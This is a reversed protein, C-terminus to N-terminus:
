FNISKLFETVYPSWLKVGDRSDFLQHGEGQFSDILVSQVPAGAAHYAFTANKALAPPFLEDNDAYVWLSPTRATKGFESFAKVLSVDWVCPGSLNKLGGSFSIIGKVYSNQYNAAYAVSVLGGYSHGVVLVRNADIYPQKIFYQIAVDISKAQLIADRELDCGRQKYVGDSKSFGARMPLIVAYGRSLFDQVANPARFRPQERAPVGSKGHNVVVLPFPGDGVPKYLTVELNWSWDYPISLVEEKYALALAPDVYIFNLGVIAVALRLWSKMANRM